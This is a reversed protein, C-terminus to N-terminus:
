AAPKLLHVLSSCSRTDPWPVINDKHMLLFLPGLTTEAAKVSRLSKIAKWWFTDTGSRYQGGARWGVAEKYMDRVQDQDTSIGVQVM